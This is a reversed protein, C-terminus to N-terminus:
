PNRQNLPRTMIRTIYEPHVSAYLRAQMIIIFLQLSLARDKMFQTDAPVRRTTEDGDSRDETGKFENSLAFRLTEHTDRHM